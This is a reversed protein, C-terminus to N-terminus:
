VKWDGKVISVILAWILAFAGFLIVFACKLVFFLALFPVSLYKLVKVCLAKFIIWLAILRTKSM